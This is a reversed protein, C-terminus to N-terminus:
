DPNWARSEYWEVVRELMRERDEGVTYTHDANRYYEVDIRARSELGSFMGFFQRRYNYYGEAGSTYLYLLQVGRDTLSQIEREVDRRPGFPRRQGHEGTEVTRAPRPAVTRRLLHRWAPARLARLARRAWYALHYRNTRYGYGDLLIAGAIRPDRVAVAHANDAGACLGFVVFHHVRCRREVDDMADVIDAIVREEDSGPRDSSESDGRGGLDFRLSRIGRDALRRALAVSMRHPGVRHLLGANLIVAIPTDPRAAVRDPETLVGILNLQPGFTCPQEKL